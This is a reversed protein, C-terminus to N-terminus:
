SMPLPQRWCIPDDRYSDLLARDLGSKELAAACESIMQDLMPRSTAEFQFALQAYDRVERLNVHGNPGFFRIGDITNEPKVNWKAKLLKVINKPEHWPTKLEQTAFCPPITQCFESLRIRRQALFDLLWCLAFFSVYHGRCVRASYRGLHDFGILANTQRMPYPFSMLSIPALVPKGGLRRVEELL